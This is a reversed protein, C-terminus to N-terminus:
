MHLTHNVYMQVPLCYRMHVQEQFIRQYRAVLDEDKSHETSTPEAGSPTMAVM